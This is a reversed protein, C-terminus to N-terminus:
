FSYVYSIDGKLENFTSESITAPYAARTFYLGFRISHSKDIQYSSTLFSNITWHNAELQTTRIFANNWATMIKGQMFAKNAGLSFGMAQSSLFYNELENYNLGAMLSLSQEILTLNYNLSVISAQNETYSQTFTNNDNLTMKNYMLMVMHNYKPGTLMLRPAIGINSTTQFYKLSDILPVRGARQNSSYDSYNLDIGFQPTPNISISLSSITRLSTAKKTNRLNDRQLGISGRFLLKRKWASFSPTLTIHELDNNFFYAGMTRYGPDIRRYELRLGHNDARYQLASRIATLWESSQNIPVFRNVIQLAPEDDLNDFGAAQVDTTYVSAAIENEMSLRPSFTVLNNLGTVLNQEAPFYGSPLQTTVKTTDDKIQMVVLDLFNKESGFGIRAALGKRNFTQTTDIAEQYQQNSKRFRGYVMGFRFKGPNLELGGGLFTHGALTFQSFNLQRYGAHVRIWKYSPSLGFQNFPQSYYVKRSSYRFSLPVSVGYVSLNVNASLMLAFPNMRNEIGTANYGIMNANFNGHFAFAQRSGIGELQQAYACFTMCAILCAQLLPHRLNTNTMGSCHKHVTTCNFFLSGSQPFGM